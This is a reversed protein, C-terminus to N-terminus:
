NDPVLWHRGTAWGLFVRAESEEGGDSEITGGNAAIELGAFAPRFRNRFDNGQESLHRKAWLLFRAVESEPLLALFFVMQRWAYATQKLRLLRARRGGERTPLRKCIWEFCQRAMEGLQGRLRETLNLAAFLPALNQTTLVQQQEIIMGNGAPSWGGLSVGARAACLRAFDDPESGTEQGGRRETSIRRIEDFEIGYYTAYLSGDLFDATARASKLFEESFKGVFIDAALENILPIDRAAGRALARLEKVLKNPIISWPFATLTAAVAMKLTQLALKRSAPDNHRFREIAAIWPLDKLQVQRGLDFLIVSRRRRFARYLAAYLRRLAPDPISAAQAQSSLQPLIKALVEASTVLRREILTDMTGKGCREIKRRISAPIPTGEPVGSRAAEMKTVAGLLDDVSDLGDDGPHDELRRAAVRAITRFTPASVDAAQRGLAEARAASDPAGHKEAYRRLILRIRGVERGTLERPGRACKSLFERLQSRHGNAREMRGCLTHKRRLEAFEALLAVAREPWGEPYRQCPWDGECTELFLAVIRDYLPSWVEVAERQALIRKNPRIAGLDDVVIGVTRVHMTSDFRRAQALPVPYFRLRSFYPVLEDILERAERGHGNGVLWAVALLAGEEPVAVHYRANRLRDQLSALGAETLFHANLSRRVDGTSPIALSDAFVREHQQLHGGALLEGTAFGGLLVRLTVWAPAGRIPTRSGPEITGSLIGKLVARWESVRAKARERTEPDENHESTVLAKAIQLAAYGPNAVARAARESSDQRHDKM